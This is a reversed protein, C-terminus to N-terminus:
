LEEKLDEDEFEQETLSAKLTIGKKKLDLDNEIKEAAMDGEYASLKFFDNM